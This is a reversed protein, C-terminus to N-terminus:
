FVKLLCFDNSFNMFIELEDNEVQKWYNQILKESELLRQEFYIM